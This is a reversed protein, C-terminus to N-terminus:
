RRSHFLRVHSSRGDAGFHAWVISPPCHNPDDRPSVLDMEWITIRSGAIVNRLVHRVGADRDSNLAYTLFALDTGWGRTPGVIRVGPEFLEGAASSFRGEEAEALVHEATRARRAARERVDDYRGAASRLLMEALKRKGEALRSRVTGVPVGSFAAIEQYSTVDTFYRLLVTLQLPESLSDLARCVWERLAHGELVEEADACGGELGEACVTVRRGRREMLCCNRVIARLWGGVMGPERVEGFRAIAVVIAEQVADEAEAGHGLVGVATGVMGARHREILVGLAAGEGARAAAVLEADSSEDMGVPHM